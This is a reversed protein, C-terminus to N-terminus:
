DAQGNRRCSTFRIDIEQHLLLDRQCCTITSACDWPWPEMGGKFINVLVQCDSFIVSQGEHQKAYEIAGYLAKAEAAVPSSVNALGVKGDYVTEHVNSIIFGYAAVQSDHM